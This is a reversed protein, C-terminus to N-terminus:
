IRAPLEPTAELLAKTYAERPFRCIQDCAGMEV